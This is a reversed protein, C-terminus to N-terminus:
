LEIYDIEDKEQTDQNESQLSMPSALTGTRRASFSPYHRRRSRRATCRRSPPLPLQQDLESPLRTKNYMYAFYLCREYVRCLQVETPDTLSRLDKDALESPLIVERQHSYPLYVYLVHDQNVHTPPVLINRILISFNPPAFTSRIM